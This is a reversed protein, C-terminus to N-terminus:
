RAGINVPAPGTYPPIVLGRGILPSGPKPTFDANLMPDAITWDGGNKLVLNNEINVTNFTGIMETFFNNNVVTGEHVYDWSWNMGFNGFVTNNYVKINWMPGEPGTGLCIGCGVENILNHDYIFNKVSGESYIGSTGYFLQAGDALGRGGHIFNHHVRTGNGDSNRTTMLIGGDATLLGGEGLENCFIESEASDMGLAANVGVGVVRNGYIPGAANFGIIGTDDCFPGRFSPDCSPDSQGDGTGLSTGAGASGSDGESVECTESTPVCQNGPIDGGLTVCKFGSPCDAGGSCDLGCFHEGTDQNIL